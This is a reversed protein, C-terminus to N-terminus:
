YIQISVSCRVLNISYDKMYVSEKEMEPTPPRHKQLKPRYIDEEPM